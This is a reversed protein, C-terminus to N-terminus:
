IPARDLQQRSLRLCRSAMRRFVPIPLRFPNLSPALNTEELKKLFLFLSPLSYTGFQVIMERYDVTVDYTDLEVEKRVREMFAAEEAYDQPVLEGQKKTMNSRTQKVTRMAHRKFYPVIVETAFSIIQATITSFFMQKSIRSADAHLERTTIGKDARVLTVAALRWFNLFPTLVHSFPIYVFATFILPMYSTIFNVVFQKQVFAANHGDITEHNEWETLKEAYSTLVSTFIPLVTVLLVTPLFPLFQKFPGGYVENIFIELSNCIVIFGGLVLACAIAFPIQLLQTKFRKYPSYVKTPEGTVPDEAESLLSLDKLM